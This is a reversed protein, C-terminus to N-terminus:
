RAISRSLWTKGKLEGAGDSGTDRAGREHNTGAGVAGAAKLRAHQGALIFRAPRSTSADAPGLWECGELFPCTM